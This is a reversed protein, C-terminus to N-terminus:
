GSSSMLCSHGCVEATRGILGGLERDLTQVGLIVRNIGYSMYGRIRDHSFDGPNCEITIEADQTVSFSSKIKGIIRGAYQPELLSPTGGGIYITDVVDAREDIESVVRDAFKGLLESRERGSLSGMPESYFSCYDCKKRCYPVHVYVGAPSTM